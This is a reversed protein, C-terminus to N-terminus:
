GDPPFLDTPLRLAHSLRARRQDHRYDEESPRRARSQAFLVEITLRDVPFAHVVAIGM